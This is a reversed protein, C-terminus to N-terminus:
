DIVQGQSANSAEVLAVAATVEISETVQGLQLRADVSVQQQTGVVIGKQEFKKFGAAEVVLTYAGPVIESFVFGGAAATLSSRQANTGESILSVKAGGLAGGNQDLVSGSLGGYYSQALVALTVISALVLLRLKM